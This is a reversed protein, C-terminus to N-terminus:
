IVNTSTAHGDFGYTPGSVQRRQLKNPEHERRDAIVRRWERGWNRISGIANEGGGEGGTTGAAQRLDSQHLGVEGM